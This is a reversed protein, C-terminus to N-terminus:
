ARDTEGSLRRQPPRRQRQKLLRCAASRKPAHQNQPELEHTPEDCDVSMVSAHMHSIHRPLAELPLAELQTQWSAVLEAALRKRAVGGDADALSDLQETITALVDPEATLQRLRELLRATDPEARVLDEPCYDPDACGREGLFAAVYSLATAFPVDNWRVVRKGSLRVISCETGDTLM